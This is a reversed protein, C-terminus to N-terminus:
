SLSNRAKTMHIGLCHWLMHLLLELNGFQMQIHKHILLLTIVDWLAGLVTGSYWKRNYWVACPCIDAVHKPNHLSGFINRPWM